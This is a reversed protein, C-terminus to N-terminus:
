QFALIYQSTYKKIGLVMDFNNLVSVTCAQCTYYFTDGM